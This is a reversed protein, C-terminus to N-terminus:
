YIKFDIITKRKKTKIGTEKDEQIDLLKYSFTM